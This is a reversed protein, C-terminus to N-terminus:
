GPQRPSGDRVSERRQAARRVAVLLAQLYQRSHDRTEMRGFLPAFYAHFDQFAGYMQEFAAADM